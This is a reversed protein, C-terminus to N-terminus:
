RWIGAVLHGDLWIVFATLIVGFLYHVWTWDSFDLPHAFNINELGWVQWSLTWQTNWILGIVEPIGFGLIGWTLWYWGFFTVHWRQVHTAAALAAFM